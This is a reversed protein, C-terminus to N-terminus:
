KHHAFSLIVSATIWYANWSKVTPHTIRLRTELVTTCNKHIQLIPITPYFLVWFPLLSISLTETRTLMHILCTKELYFRNSNNEQLLHYCIDQCVLWRIHELTTAASWAMSFVIWATSLILLGKYLVARQRAGAPVVSICFDTHM